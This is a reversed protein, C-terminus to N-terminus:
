KLPIEEPRIHLYVCLKMFEDAELAQKTGVCLKDDSIHLEEAAKKSSIHNQVMYDALWQTARNQM